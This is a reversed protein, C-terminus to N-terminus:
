GSAEADATRGELEERMKALCRSIRSAITGAPIDLAAAIELYSQDRLFFRELVARCHDPMRRLAEHVVVAEDIQELRADVAGADAVAGDSVERASARIRDICLRRTMQGLWPRIAGDDRLTAIEEYARAFAEQFVDEADQAPLRFGRVAIAYVYDGFQEVLERWAGPDGERCGTVLSRPAAPPTSAPM